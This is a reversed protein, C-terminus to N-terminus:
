ARKPFKKQFFNLIEEGAYDKEIEKALEKIRKEVSEKNILNEIKYKM